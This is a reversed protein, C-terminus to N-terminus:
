RQRADQADVARVVSEASGSAFTTRLSDGAALAAADRVLNGHADRTLSFGRALVHQPDLHLLAQAQARVQAARDSFWRALANHLAQRRREVGAAAAVLRSRSRTMATSADMLARRRLALASGAAATLRVALSRVRADLGALPARPAALARLAYDLQQAARQLEHALMQRLRILSAALADQLDAAAPAVLEAAATPTPARLDAAFDAITFDSEHGVGSVVAIACARIARAVAEDNFAWLDEISGGGRVLLVVEVEARRSVTDLMAAIQAGAGEGQVPVPYVVISAYPARRTLTTVVDRLAAAALSTVVGIRAPFAPLPRKISEDFLGEAALKAKLRLFQEFLRGLGARTLSEAVLQFEGRAEYLSVTGRLEVEDGERPAFSVLMNRGRFMVCRVQAADDKLSFYWHGSAARTFNGIEGRVQVSPFSRALQEAVARNLQSVSLVPTRSDRAPGQDADAFEPAMRTEPCLSDVFGRWTQVRAM